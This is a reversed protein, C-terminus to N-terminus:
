AAEKAAPPAAVPAAAAPKKRREGHPPDIVATEIELERLLTAAEVLARRTLLDGASQAQEVLAKVRGVKDHVQRMVRRSARAVAYGM